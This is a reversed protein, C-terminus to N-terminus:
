ARAGDGPVREELAAAFLKRAASHGPPPTSPTQRASAEVPSTFSASLGHSSAGPTGRAGARHGLPQGGHGRGRPPRVDRAELAHQAPQAPGAAGGGGRRKRSAASGRRASPRPARPRQEPSMGAAASAATAPAPSGRGPAPRRPAAASAPRASSRPRPAASRRPSPAGGRATGAAAPRRPRRVGQPAVEVEAHARRARPQQAGPELARQGIQGGERLAVVRDLGPELGPGGAVSKRSRSLPMGSRSRRAARTAHPLAVGRSRPASRSASPRSGTGPRPARPGRPGRRRRRRRQAARGPGRPPQQARRQDVLRRRERALAADDAGAVVLPAVLEVRQRVRALAPDGLELGRSRSRM